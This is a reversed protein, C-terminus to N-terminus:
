ATTRALYKGREYSLGRLSASCLSPVLVAGPVGLAECVGEQPTTKSRADTGLSALAANLGASSPELGITLDFRDTDSTMVACVGSVVWPPLAADKIEMSYCM